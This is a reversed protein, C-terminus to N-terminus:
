PHQEVKKENENNRNLPRGEKENGTIILIVRKKQNVQKRNM